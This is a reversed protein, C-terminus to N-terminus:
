RATCLAEEPWGATTAVSGDPRVLRAPLGLRELWRVAREGRVIAATSAANAALCTAAAVTVTRWIETAPLGTGPDVIHHRDSGGARWRRVGTSSTALGGDRIAVAAGPVAPASRHDEAIRVAWGDAPAPGATALDGGLSVLAGTRTRDHVLRACCDAAFAKATSGLDLEVGPPVSVLRRRRDVSVCQWGAAPVIEIRRRERGSRVLAFDRDWGLGRLSRGVTPDVAGGTAAAAALAAAIADLLLPGAQFPRGDSRNLRALESDDRFRSCALDLARLEDRVIRTADDLADARVVTVHALVGIAPFVRSAPPM